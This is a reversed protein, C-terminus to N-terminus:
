APVRTRCLAALRDIVGQENPIKRDGRNCPPWTLMDSLVDYRDTDSWRAWLEHAIEGLWEDDPLRHVQVMENHSDLELRLETTGKAGDTRGKIKAFVTKFGDTEAWTAETGIIVARGFM